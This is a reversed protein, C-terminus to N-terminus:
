KHFKYTDWFLDLEVGSEAAVEVLDQAIPEDLLWILHNAEKVIMFRYNIIRNLVDVQVWTDDIYDYSYTANLTEAFFFLFEKVVDPLLDQLVDNVLKLM